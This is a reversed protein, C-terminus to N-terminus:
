RWNGVPVHNMRTPNLLQYGPRDMQALSHAWLLRGSFRVTALIFWGVLTGIVPLANFSLALLSAITVSVFVAVRTLAYTGFNSFVLSLTPFPNLLSPVSEGDALRRALAPVILLAMPLIVVVIGDIVPIVLEWGLLRGIGLEFRANADEMFWGFIGALTLIIALATTLYTPIYIAYILLRLGIGQRLFSGTENWDPLPRPNGAKLNKITQIQYGDSIAEVFPIATIISGIFIKKVWQPDQRIYSLGKGIEM